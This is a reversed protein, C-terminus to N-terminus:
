KGVPPLTATRLPSHSFASLCFPLSVFSLSLYFLPLFSFSFLFRSDFVHFLFNPSPGKDDLGRGGCDTHKFCNVKRAAKILSYVVPSVVFFTRGLQRHTDLGDDPTKRRSSRNRGRRGGGGGREGM